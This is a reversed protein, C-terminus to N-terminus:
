AVFDAMGMDRLVGMKGGFFTASLMFIARKKLGKGLNVISKSHGSGWDGM